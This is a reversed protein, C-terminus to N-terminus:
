NTGGYDTTGYFNGDTGQVMRAQSGSGDTPYGAFSYLTTYTGSPSIRFVVGDLDRGGTDVTGYFNGDSGQVLGALISGNNFNGAFYYLNTYSGSPSIRFVRVDTTGYFNGDRGQVLGVWPNAGDNPTGAFTHLITETQANADRITPGFAYLGVLLGVLLLTTRLKMIEDRAHEQNRWSHVATQLDPLYFIHLVKRLM